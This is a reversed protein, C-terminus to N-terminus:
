MPQAAIAGDSAKTDIWEVPPYDETRITLVPCTARRVIEETVGGLLQRWFGQHAHTGMVVLDYDGAQVEQLIADPVEAEGGPVLRGHAELQIDKEVGALWEMMKHGEDSRAFEVLLATKSGVDEPPHWVHLVDVQAGVEAGLEAAYRLAARSTDSFDVPVLIRNPSHM